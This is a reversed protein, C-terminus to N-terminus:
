PGARNASWSSSTGSTTLSTNKPSGPTDAGFYSTSKAGRLRRQSTSSLPCPYAGPPRGVSRTATSNRIPSQDFDNETTPSRAHYKDAPGLAVAGVGKM